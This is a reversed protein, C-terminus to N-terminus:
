FEPWPGALPWALPWGPGPWPGALPGALPWGPPWGPGPLPGPWPGALALALAWSARGGTDGATAALPGHPRAGLDGAIAAPARPGRRYGGPAWSARGGPGRRIGGPGKTGPSHRRAGQGGAFAAPGRPGRRIGGPGKTWFFRSFYCFRGPHERSRGHSCFCILFHWIFLIQFVHTLVQSTSRRSEQPAGWSALVRGSGWGDMRMGVERMGM